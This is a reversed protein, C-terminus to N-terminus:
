KFGVKSMGWDGDRLDPNSVTLKGNQWSGGCEHNNFLTCSLSSDRHNLITMNINRMGGMSQVKGVVKFPATLNEHTIKKCTGHAQGKNTIYIKCAGWPVHGNGTTLNATWLGPLPNGQYPPPYSAAAATVISSVFVATILIIRVIKKM